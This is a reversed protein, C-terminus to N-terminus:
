LERIVNADEKQKHVLGAQYHWIRDVAEFATGAIHVPRKCIVLSDLNTVEGM